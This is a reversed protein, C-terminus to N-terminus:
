QAYEPNTAFSLFSQLSAQKVLLAADWHEDTPGIFYPGGRGFFLVEGGSAELFSQTHDTYRQYAQEGSVDSEPALEPHTSYDAVERFRLLNLMVVPGQINKSFLARGAEETPELYTIAPQQSDADM